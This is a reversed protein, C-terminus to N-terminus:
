SPCRRDRESAVRHQEGHLRVIEVRKRAAPEREAEPRLDLRVDGAAEAHRPRVRRGPHALHDRRDARDEGVPVVAHREVELALEVGV